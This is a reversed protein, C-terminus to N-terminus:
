KRWQSFALLSWSLMLCLGGVPTVPGLWKWSYLCLLYISGSFLVTGALMLWGATRALKSAQPWLLSLGYLLVAHPLHLRVATEWSSLKGATKLAEHVPGHAGLSGLVLASLGLFAAAPKM